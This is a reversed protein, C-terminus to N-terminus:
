GKNARTQKGAAAAVVAPEVVVLRVGLQGLEAEDVVVPGVGLHDPRAMARHVGFRSPLLVTPVLSPHVLTM